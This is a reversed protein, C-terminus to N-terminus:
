GSPEDTFEATFFVAHMKFQKGDAPFYQVAEGLKGLLRAGRGLEERVERQVTDEPAEGPLSGGGPLFHGKKSNVVAVMSEGNTIVAYAALRDTCSVGPTPSGFVVLDSQPSQIAQTM